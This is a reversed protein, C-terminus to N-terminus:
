AADEVLERRERQDQAEARIGELQRESPYLRLGCRECNRAGASSTENCIPCWPHFAPETM